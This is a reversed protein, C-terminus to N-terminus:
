HSVRKAKNIMTTTRTGRARYRYKKPGEADTKVAIPAVNAKKSKAVNLRFCM